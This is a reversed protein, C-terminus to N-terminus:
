LWNFFTCNKVVNKSKIRGFIIECNDITCDYITCNIIRLNKLKCGEIHRDTIEVGEGIGVINKEIIFGDDFSEGKKLKLRKM